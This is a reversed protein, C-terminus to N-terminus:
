STLLPESSGIDFVVNIDSTYQSLAYYQGMIFAACQAKIVETYSTGLPMYISKSGTCDIGTCLAIENITAYNANGYLITCASIIEAIETISLSFTLKCSVDLFTGNINSLDFKGGAPPTPSLNNPGPNFVTNSVTGSAVTRLNTIVTAASTDIVKLYYCAYLQSGITVVKRMRYNSISPTTIASLDGVNSSDIARVIFPIHNYLSASDPAIDNVNVNILGNTALSYTSGGNGIAVYKLTPQTSLPTGVTLPITSPMGGFKTNLVGWEDPNHEKGLLSYVQLANGYITRSISSM